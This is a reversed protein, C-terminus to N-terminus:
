WYVLKLDLRQKGVIERSAPVERAVGRNNRVPRLWRSLPPKQWDSTARAPTEADPLLRSIRVESQIPVSNARRILKRWFPLQDQLECKEKRNRFM